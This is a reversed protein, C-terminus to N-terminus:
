LAYCKIHIGCSVKFRVNESKFSRDQLRLM